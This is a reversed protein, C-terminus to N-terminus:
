RWRRQNLTSATLILISLHTSEKLETEILEIVEPLHYRNISTDSRLEIKSDQIQLKVKSM